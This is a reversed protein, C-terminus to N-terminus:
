SNTQVLPVFTAPAKVMSLEVAPHLGIGRVADLYRKQLASLLPADGSLPLQEISKVVTLEALTGCYGIEDAVLL